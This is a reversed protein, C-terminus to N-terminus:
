RYIQSTKFKIIIFCGEIRRFFFCLADICKYKLNTRDNVLVQFVRSAGVKSNRDGDPMHDRFDAMPFGKIYAVAKIYFVWLGKGFPVPIPKVPKVM